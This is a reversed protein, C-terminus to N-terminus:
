GDVRWDDSKDIRYSGNTRKHIQAVVRLGSRECRVFEGARSVFTPPDPLLMGDWVYTCPHKWRTVGTQPDLGVIDTRPDDIFSVVCFVANAGVSHTVRIVHAKRWRREWVVDLSDLNICRLPGGAEAAYAWTLKPHYAVDLVGFGRLKLRKRGVTSIANWIRYTQDDMAALAKRGRDNAFARDVGSLRYQLRGSAQNRIEYGQESVLLGLYSGAFFQLTQIRPRELKWAIKMDRARFVCAGNESDASALFSGDDAVAIRKGGVTYSALVRGRHALRKLDFLDIWRQNSGRSLAACVMWRCASSLRLETWLIQTKSAAKAM